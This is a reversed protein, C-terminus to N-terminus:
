RDEHPHSSPALVPNCSSTGYRQRPVVDSCQRHGERHPRGCSWNIINSTFQGQIEGAGAKFGRISRVHTSDAVDQRVDQASLM